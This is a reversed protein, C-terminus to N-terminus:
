YVVKFTEAIDNMELIKKGQTPISLLYKYGQRDVANVGMMYFDENKSINKISEIVLFGKGFSKPISSYKTSEITKLLIVKAEGDQGKLWYSLNKDFESVYFVYTNPYTKFPPADRKFVYVKSPQLFVEINDNLIGYNTSSGVYKATPQFLLRMGPRLDIKEGFAINSFFMIILVLFIRM